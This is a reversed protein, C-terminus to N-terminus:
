IMMCAYKCILTFSYRYGPLEQFRKESTKDRYNRRSFNTGLALHRHRVAYSSVNNLQFSQREVVTGTAAATPSHPINSFCITEQLVRLRPREQSM